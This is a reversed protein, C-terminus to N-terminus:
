LLTEIHVIWVIAPNLDEGIQDKVVTSRQKGERWTELGEQCYVEMPIESLVAEHATHIAM